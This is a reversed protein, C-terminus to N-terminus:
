KGIKRFFRFSFYAFVLDIAVIIWTWLPTTSSGVSTSFSGLGGRFPDFYNVSSNLLMVIVSIAVYFSFMWSKM